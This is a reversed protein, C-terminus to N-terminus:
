FNIIVGIGYRKWYPPAISNIKNFLQGGNKGLGYKNIINQEMIRANIKSIGTADPITHYKLSARSSESHLHEAFRVNPSRETIGVYRINGEGDEGIYVSHNGESVATQQATSSSMLEDACEMSEVTTEPKLYNAKGPTESTQSSQAATEPVNSTQTVPTGGKIEGTWFNGGKLVSSVGARRYFVSDPQSAQKKYLVKGGLYYLRRTTGGEVIEEYDGM